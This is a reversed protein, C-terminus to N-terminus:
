AGASTIGRLEPPHAQLGAPGCVRDRGADKAEYLAADARDVLGNPSDESGSWAAVGASITLAIEDQRWRVRSQSVVTRLQEAVAAAKTADTDPLLVLFEEGGWRSAADTSRLRRAMHGALIRLVHDGAAHGLQDNVRKFHDIDLMIVSFPRRTRSARRTERALLDQMAARNLLGTLSDHTAAHRLQRGLRFIVLGALTVEFSLSLLLWSIAAALYISTGAATEAAMRAPDMLAQVARAGFLVAGITMPTGFLAWLWRSAGLERLHLVVLTSLWAACGSLLLSVSAIRWAADQPSPWALTVALSLALIGAFAADPPRRGSFLHLGRCHLLLGAILFLNGALLMAPSIQHSGLVYATFSMACLLAFGAWHWLAPRLERLLWGSTFWGVALVLEQLVAMMLAAHPAPLLNLDVM